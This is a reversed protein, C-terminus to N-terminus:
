PLPAVKTLLPLNTYNGAAYYPSAIATAFATQSSASSEIPWNYWANNEYIRWNFWVLAKIQPFNRPMQTSLAETIWAAKGTEVSGTQTIMIPKTPAIQLLNAYSSGFLWAFTENGDQNFGDLGTWDVYASGPYLQSYPTFKNGPDVNPAWVWTINTAGAQVALDHVHRWMSVFDAATNGNAGPSYPEWPGNMEVDPLLFFPHGFAAASRMWTTISADYLGNAIDRLPVSKTSWDIAPIAGRSVALQATTADFGKEWPPPQGYHAISVHKGANSEFKNWTTTDWPANGWTGGYFYNYTQAGEIYAGWYV